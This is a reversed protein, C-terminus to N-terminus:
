GLFTKYPLTSWMAQDLSPTLFKKSPADVQFRGAASSMFKKLLDILVLTLLEFTLDIEGFGSLRSLGGVCKM